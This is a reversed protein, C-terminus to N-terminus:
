SGPGPPHRARRGPARRARRLLARPVQGGRSDLPTGGGRVHPHPPPARREPAAGDRLRHGGVGVGHAGAHPARLCRLPLLHLPAPGRSHAEVRARHAGEGQPDDRCHGLGRRRHRPDPRRGARLARRRVRERRGCGEGRVGRAREPGAGRRRRSRAFGPVREDQDGETRRDAHGASVQEFHDGPRSARPRRGTPHAGSNYGSSCVAGASCCDRGGAAPTLALRGRGSAESRLCAGAPAGGASRPPVLSLRGRRSM